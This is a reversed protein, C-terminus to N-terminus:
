EDGDHYISRAVRRLKAVRDRVTSYEAGTDAAIEGLTSELLVHSLLGHRDHPQLRHVLEALEAAAHPSDRAAWSEVARDLQGPDLVEHGWTSLLDELYRLIRRVVVTNAWTNFRVGRSPDFTGAYAVVQCGADQQADERHGSDFVMKRALYRIKRRGNGELWAGMARSLLHESMSSRGNTTVQGRRYDIIEAHLWEEPAAIGAGLCIALIRDREDPSLETTAVPM